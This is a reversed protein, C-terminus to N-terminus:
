FLFREDQDILFQDLDDWGGQDELQPVTVKFCTNNGTTDEPIEISGNLFDVYSSVISLGLGHGPNISNIRENLQRFRDYIAQKKEVPIDKGNNCVTFTLMKKEFTVNFEIIGKEDSFKIANDLLNKIVLDLKDGDTLFSTFDPEEKGVNFHLNVTLGKLEIQKEFYCIAKGFLQKLNVSVAKLGDTGAEIVAAAFINKLQFDLHFAEDFILSAMSKAKEMQGDELQQLNEALAMISTFPNIIENTVNSIFHGKLAESEKLKGNVRYLKASLDEIKKLLEEKALGNM